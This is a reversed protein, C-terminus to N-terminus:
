VRHGETVRDYTADVDPISGSGSALANLDSALLMEVAHVVGVYGGERLVDRATEPESADGVRWDVSARLRAARNGSAPTADGDSSPPTGRRSIGTVDYGAELLELCIRSGVFGTGGLVLVDLAVRRLREVRARPRRPAIVRPPNGAREVEAGPAVM